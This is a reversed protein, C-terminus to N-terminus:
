KASCFTLLNRNNLAFIYKCIYSVFSTALSFADVSFYKAFYALVLLEWFTRRRSLGVRCYQRLGLVVTCHIHYLTPVGM